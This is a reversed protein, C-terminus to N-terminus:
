RRFCACGCQALGQLAVYSTFVTAYFLGVGANALTKGVVTGVGDDSEYCYFGGGTTRANQCGGVLLCALLLVTRRM